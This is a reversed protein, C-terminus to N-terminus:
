PRLDNGFEPLRTTLLAFNVKLDHWTITDTITRGKTDSTNGGNDRHTQCAAAIYRLSVRM